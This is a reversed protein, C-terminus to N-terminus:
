VELSEGNRLNNFGVDALKCFREAWTNFTKHGVDSLLRNHTPFCQTPKVASVYDVTEATKLWPGSVPLALLEPAHDPITFSDGPYFFRDNVMVGVNDCVPVSPHIVAHKEGYFQLTFPGVEAQEGGRVVNTAPTDFTSAVDAPMYLKVDPNATIIAQLHGPNFHDSHEHTVVVAAIATTGGFDDTFAGPDIVLKKGQEEIVVCAHGYKTVKM